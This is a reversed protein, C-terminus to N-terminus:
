APFALASSPAPSLLGSLNPQIRIAALCASCERPCAAPTSMSIVAARYHRAGVGRRVRNAAVGNRKHLDDIVFEILSIQHSGVGAASLRTARAAREIAQKIGDLEAQKSSEYAQVDGSATRIILRYPM